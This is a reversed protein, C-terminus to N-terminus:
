ESKLLQSLKGTYRIRNRQASTVRTTSNLSSGVEITFFLTESSNDASFTVEYTKKEEDKTIKLDKALTDELTFGGDTGYGGGMQREGFYPLEISVKEGELKIYYGDGTLDVRSMTSGPRMVGGSNGVRAMATTVQPEAARVVIQFTEQEMMADLAANSVAPKSSGCGFVLISGIVVLSINRIKM